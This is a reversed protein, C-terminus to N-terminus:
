KVTFHVKDRADLDTQHDAAVARLELVHTGPKLGNLTGKESEFMGMLEDDVYAHVHHSRKGKTLIFQIAVQDGKVSQRARPSLIEVSAGEAPQLNPAVAKEHSMHNLIQKGTQHAIAAQSRAPPLQALVAACIVIALGLVMEVTVIHYLKKLGAGPLRKSADPGGQSLKPVISYRNAAGLSLLAVVLTLKVSLTQGYPNELLLAVSGMQHWMQYGGTALVIAVCVGALNSFRRVTATMASFNQGSVSSKIGQRLFRALFVLGGAWASVVLLHLWDAVVSLSFTGSDAAHGSLSATLLLMGCTLFAPRDKKGTMIFVALFSLLITRVMWVKGFHTKSLVTPVVQGVEVFPKGSIMHSRLTLDVLGTLLLCVPLFRELALSKDSPPYMVIRRFVFSGTLLIMGILDIGRVLSHMLVHSEMM